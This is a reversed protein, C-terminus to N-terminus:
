KEVKYVFLVRDSVACRINPIELPLIVHKTNTFINIGLLTSVSDYVNVTSFVNDDCNFMDLEADSSIITKDEVVEFNDIYIASMDPSLDLGYSHVVLMFGIIIKKIM